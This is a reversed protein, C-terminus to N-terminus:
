LLITCGSAAAERDLAHEPILALRVGVVDRVRARVRRQEPRHDRAPAALPADPSTGRGRPAARSSCPARRAARRRLARPGHEAVRLRGRERQRLGACATITSTPSSFSMWGRLLCSTPARSASAARARPTRAAVDLVGPGVCRECATRPPRSRRALEVVDAASEHARALSPATPPKASRRRPGASRTPRRACRPCCADITDLACTGCGPPPASRTPCCGWWPSGTCDRRAKGRDREAGVGPLRRIFRQMQM